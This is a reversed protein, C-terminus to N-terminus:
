PYAITDITTKGFGRPAAIAVKQEPGDLLNFIENHLLSFPRHFREPFLVKCSTRTSRYCSEIVEQMNNKSRNEIM